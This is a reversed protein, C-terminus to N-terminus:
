EKASAEKTTSDVAESNAVPQEVLMDLGMETMIQAFNGETFQNFLSFPPQQDDTSAASQSTDYQAAFARVVGPMIIRAHEVRCPHIVMMQASGLTTNRQCMGDVSGVTIAVPEFSPDKPTCSITLSSETGRMNEAASFDMDCSAYPPATCVISSEASAAGESYEVTSTAAGDGKCTAVQQRLFYSVEAIKGKDSLTYFDTHIMLNGGEDLLFFSKNKDASVVSKPTEGDCGEDLIAILDGEQPPEGGESEAMDVLLAVLTTVISWKLGRIVGEPGRKPGFSLKM